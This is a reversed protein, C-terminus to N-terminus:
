LTKRVRDVQFSFAVVCVGIKDQYVYVSVYM